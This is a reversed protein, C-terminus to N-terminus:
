RTTEALLGFVSFVLPKRDLNYIEADRAARTIKDWVEAVQALRAPEDALAALRASLWDHVTDVFAGLRAADTGSIEDALAHLAEPPVAPLRDLLTAARLRLGLTDGEILALARGISGDSAAVVGAIDDPPREALAEIGRAVLDGPLRRLTLTRCRSRITPLLRGPTSSLVLFLARTPPEELIKLLANAQAGRLDDATDVICVRWGGEGATSGFFVVTRRVQDVTIVSQLKGKDDEVRDLILLDPHSQAAVRRAAANEPDVDLSTADRVDRARPDPHALVFRAMRYALTAKGVGQPGTILWAHPMRGSAYAALFELEAEAHGFLAFTERPHRESM